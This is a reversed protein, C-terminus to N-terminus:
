DRDFRVKIENLHENLDEDDDLLRTNYEEKSYIEQKKGADM